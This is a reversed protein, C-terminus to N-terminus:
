KRGIIEPSAQLQSVLDVQVMEKPAAALIHGSLLSRHPSTSPCAGQPDRLSPGENEAQAATLCSVVAAAAATAALIPRPSTSAASGQHSSQAEAQSLLQPKIL